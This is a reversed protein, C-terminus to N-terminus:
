SIRGFYFGNTQPDVAFRIRELLGAYGLFNGHQWESSIFVTADVELSDGEDALITLPTRILKGHITRSRNSLDTPPGFWYQSHWERDLQENVFFSKVVDPARGLSDIEEKSFRVISYDDEISFSPEPFYCGDLMLLDRHEIKKQALRDRLALWIDDLSRGERGANFFGSRRLFDLTNSKAEGRIRTTGKEWGFHNRLHIM